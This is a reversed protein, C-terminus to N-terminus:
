RTRARRGKGLRDMVRHFPGSALLLLLWGVGVAPVVLALVLAILFLLPTVLAQGVDLQARAEDRVLEPKRVLLVEMLLLSVSTVLLTGIYFPAVGSDGGKGSSLASASFPICVISALWLVNIWVLAPSYGQVCEFIRQHAMWYRAILVFSIAFAVFAGANDIVLQLMTKTAVEHSLDVLPLILLTIAIAVTADAFNALRDLGRQTKFRKM